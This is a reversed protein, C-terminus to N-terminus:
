TSSSPVILPLSSNRESGGAGNDNLSVVTFDGGNAQESNKALGNLIMAANTFGYPTSYAKADVWQGDVSVFTMNDAVPRDPICWTGDQSAWAYVTDGNKDTLTVTIVYNEKDPLYLFKNLDVTRYGKYPALGDKGFTGSQAYVETGEQPASGKLRVSINYSMDDNSAYFGVAKVMQSASSTLKSAFSCSNKSSFFLEPLYIKAVSNLQTYRASDLEPIQVVGNQASTDQYSMYHYGNDGVKIIRDGNNIETGYSNRVIWAGKLTNGQADTFHQFEYADDWGVIAMAHSTTTATDNYIETMNESIRNWDPNMAMSLAGYSKILGKYYALNDKIYGYINGSAFSGLMDHLLGTPAIVQDVGAMSGTSYPCQENTVAGFRTLM